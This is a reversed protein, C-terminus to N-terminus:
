AFLSSLRKGCLLRAMDAEDPRGSSGSPRMSCARAAARPRGRQQPLRRARGAGLASRSRHRGARGPARVLDDGVGGEFGVARARHGQDDARRRRRERCTALVREFDPAYQADQTIVHSYPLLVSDFAFRGLSRLHMAAVTLGHGTVGIFRVLGEDRAEIAARLAGNEGLAVDWEDPHVLCHLQILDVQDVGLRELSRRIQERAPAYAREGTKTALFFRERYKRLGPALRLESEGYSAATDIHNIGHELLLELAADAESQTVAWLSAAGFIVRTSEHGTTGFPMTEIMGLLIPAGGPAPLQARGVGQARVDRARHARRLRQQGQHRAVRVVRLQGARAQRCAARYSARSPWGVLVRKGNRYLQVNYYPTGPKARWTLLPPAAVVTGSLPRLPILPALTIVRRAPPSVNASQDYAFLAVYATQGPRMMLGISSALGSYVKTGDSPTRPAHRLNLVVRVSALDAATPKVWRLTVQVKPTVVKSRPIVVSLQSPARPARTDPAAPGSFTGTLSAVGSGSGSAPGVANAVTVTTTAIGVNGAGDTVVNCVEYIGNPVKTTDWKVAIVPNTICGGVGGAHFVSSYLGSVGGDATGSVSVTGTM